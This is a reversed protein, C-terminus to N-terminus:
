GGAALILGIPILFGALLLVTTLWPSRGLRYAMYIGLFTTIALGLAVAAAFGKLLVRAMGTPRDSPPKAPRDLGEGHKDSGDLKKAGEGRHPLAFTQDKHLAGLRQILAPPRYGAAPQAKHLGFVQILGTLAFFLLAPAFLTGGYLHMKRVWVIAPWARM